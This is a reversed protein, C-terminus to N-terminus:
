LNRNISRHFIQQEIIQNQLTTSILQERLRRVEFRNSVLYTNLLALLVFLAM